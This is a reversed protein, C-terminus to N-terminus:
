GLRVKTMNTGHGAALLTNIAALTTYVAAIDATTLGQCQDDTLASSLGLYDWDKRLADLQKIADMAETAAQRVKTVHDSMQQTTAM